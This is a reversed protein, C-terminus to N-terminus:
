SPPYLHYLMWYVVVGTVSVYLWLPLTWRALWTHTRLRNRLGLYTVTLALPAVLAALVTHTGLIIFYVGRIPGEGGFRTPTGDLVMFHYYLYCGLFAASVGLALLMTVKHALIHRTKILAFGIVLLVGAAGNLGANLPPFYRAQVLRRVFGALRDVEAADKSDVYGRINGRPDVVMLFWAHDVEKGREPRRVRMLGLKFGGQVLDYIEEHKGYLFLWQRPDAKRDEAYRHLTEQDDGTPYVNISILLVNPNGAFKEQLRAMAAQTRPCIDKCCSFFVSVVCVKGDLDARTVTNGNQDTLTFDPVKGLPQKLNLSDPVESFATGSLLPLTLLAIALRRNM